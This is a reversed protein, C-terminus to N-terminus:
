KTPVTIILTTGKGPVSIIKLEGDIQNLQERM